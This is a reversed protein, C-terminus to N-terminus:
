IGSRGLGPRRSRPAPPSGGLAALRERAKNHAYRGNSYKAPVGLAANYDTIARERDGKGEHAEGRNTYAVTYGPDIKIAQDFDAIARDFDGKRKWVLGRNNWRFPDKGDIEIARDYDAIALDLDGKASHANGRNNFASAYNPSLELAKSYDAIAKDLEDQDYHFIGRNYYSIALNHGQWRGSEIQRTCAAIGEDPRTSSSNCLRQDQQFATAGVAPMSRPLTESPVGLAVLRERAKDHAFKGNGYKQPVALAALYDVKAREADGKDEYTQGRNTYAATYGPDTRIAQDFDAIARDHDGKRKWALGRNNWRFPDKGDIEIARDYDAIARDLDGKDAYANGRNNFASAYDPSLEIANTYDAIAKDNEDKDYWFIGRNYYSIALDHGEWRGSEIQRTCAAIGDDPKTESSNCLKQDEEFTTATVPTSIVGVMLALVSVLATRSHM